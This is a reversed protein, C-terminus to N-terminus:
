GQKLEARRAVSIVVGLEAFEKSAMTMPPPAAPRMHAM